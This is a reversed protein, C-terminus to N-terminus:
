FLNPSTPLAKIMANETTLNNILNKQAVPTNGGLKAPIGLSQEIKPRALVNLSSKLLRGDSLKASIEYRGIKDNLGVAVFATPKSNYTFFNVSKGAFTIEKVSTTANLNDIAIMVPEGQIVELPTVTIKVPLIVFSKNHTYIFCSFVVLLLVIAATIFIKKM